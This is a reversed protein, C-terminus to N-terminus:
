KRRNNIIKWFVKQTSNSSMETAKPRGKAKNQSIRYHELASQYFTRYQSALKKISDSTPLDRFLEQAKSLLLTENKRTFEKLFNLRQYLEGKEMGTWLRYGYNDFFTKSNLSRDFLFPSYQKFFLERAILVTPIRKVIFEGMKFIYDHKFYSINEGEEDIEYWVNLKLPFEKDNILGRYFFTGESKRVYEQFLADDSKLKVYSKGVEQRFFEANGDKLFISGNSMTLFLYHSKDKAFLNNGEILSNLKKYKKIPLPFLEQLSAFTNAEFYRLPLSITETESLNIEEYYSRSRSMWFINGWNLRAFFFVEQPSINIEHFTLSTNPSLRVLTGDMLFIWLYSDKGTNIDEKETINTGFFIQRRDNQGNIIECIKICDVVIGLTELRNSEVIKQRWNKDHDRRYREAKWLTYNLWNEIDIEGLDIINKRKQGYIITSFLFVISLAKLTNNM